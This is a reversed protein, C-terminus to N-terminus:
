IEGLRHSRILNLRTLQYGIREREQPNAAKKLQGELQHIERLSPLETSAGLDQPSHRQYTGHWLSRFASRQDISPRDATATDVAPAAAERIATAQDLPPLGQLSRLNDERGAKLLEKSLLYKFGVHDPAAKVARELADIRLARETAHSRMAKQATAESQSKAFAARRAKMAKRIAKEAAREPTKM